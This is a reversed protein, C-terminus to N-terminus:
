NFVRGCNQCQNMGGEDDTLRIHDSNCCPCKILCEDFPAGVIISEKIEEDEFKITRNPKENLDLLITQNTFMVKDKNKSLHATSQTDELLEIASLNESELDFERNTKSRIFEDIEKYSSCERFYKEVKTTELTVIILQIFSKRM